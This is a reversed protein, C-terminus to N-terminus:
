FVIEIVQEEKLVESRVKITDRVLQAAGPIPIRVQVVGETVPRKDGSKYEIRKFYRDSGTVTGTLDRLNYKTIKTPLKVQIVIEYNQGPNPDRPETWVTFSGKTIATSPPRVNRGMGAGAGEGVGDGGTSGTAGLVRESATQLSQELGGGDPFPLATFEPAAAPIDDGGLTSDIPLDLEGEADADGFLAAIGWHPRVANHLVILSLIGILTLHVIASIALGWGFSEDWWERVRDRVGALGPRYSRPAKAPVPKLLPVAPVAARSKM